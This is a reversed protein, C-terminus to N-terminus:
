NLKSKNELAGAKNGRPKTDQDTGSQCFIIVSKNEVSGKFNM